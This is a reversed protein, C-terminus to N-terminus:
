IAAVFPFSPIPEVTGFALSHFYYVPPRFISQVAFQPLLCKCNALVLSRWLSAQMHKIGERFKEGLYSQVALMKAETFEDASEPINISGIPSTELDELPRQGNAVMFLIVTKLNRFLM